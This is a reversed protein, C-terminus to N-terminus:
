YKHFPPFNTLSISLFIYFFSTYTSPIQVGAYKESTHHLLDVFLQMKEKLTYLCTLVLRKKEAYKAFKQCM